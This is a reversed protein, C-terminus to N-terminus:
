WSSAERDRRALRKQRRRRRDDKQKRHQMLLDIERLQLTKSHFQTPGTVFDSRFKPM